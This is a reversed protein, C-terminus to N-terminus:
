RAPAPAFQPAPARQPAITPRADAAPATGWGNPTPVSPYPSYTPAAPYSSPGAITPQFRFHKRVITVTTRGDVSRRVVPASEKFLKGAELNNLGDVKLTLEGWATQLKVDKVTLKGTLRDGNSLTVTFQGDDAFAQDVRAIERMAIEVEGIRSKLAVKTEGAIKGLIMSGDELTVRVCDKPPEAPTPEEGGMPVLPAPVTPGPEAPEPFAPVAVPPQLRLDPEVAMPQALAVGGFGLFAIFLMWSRSVQM